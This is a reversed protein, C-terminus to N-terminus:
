AIAFPLCKCWDGVWSKFVFPAQFYSKRLIRKTRTKHLWVVIFIVQAWMFVLFHCIFAIFDEKMVYIHCKVIVSHEKKSLNELVKITFSHNSMEWPTVRTPQFNAPMTGRASDSRPRILAELQTSCVGARSTYHVRAHM